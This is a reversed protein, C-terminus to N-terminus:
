HTIIGSKEWGDWAPVQIGLAQCASRKGRASPVHDSAHPKVVLNYRRVSGSVGKIEEVSEVTGSLNWDMAKTERYFFAAGPQILHDSGGRHQGSYIVRLTGDSLPEVSDKYPSDLSSWLTTMTKTTTEIAAPSVKRPPIKHRCESSFHGIQGCAFCAEHWSEFKKKLFSVLDPALQFSTHAGGRVNDIGYQCMLEETRSHETLPTGKFVELVCVPGYTKVWDVGSTGDFHSLIRSEVHRSFGVYYKGAKLELVYVSGSVNDDM